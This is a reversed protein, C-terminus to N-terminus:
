MLEPLLVGLGAVAGIGLIMVIWNFLVPTKPEAPPMPESPMMAAADSDRPPAPNPDVTM